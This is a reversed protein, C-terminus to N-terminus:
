AIGTNEPTMGMNKKFLFSFYAPNQFGLMESVEHIRLSPKELLEKAKDM